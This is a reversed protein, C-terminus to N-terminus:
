DLWYQIRLQLFNIGPNPNHIGANSLHQLRLSFDYSEFRWGAGIHDGFQYKTSFEVASSVHTDSLYHLGIGGDAYPGHRKGYRLVPTIGLDVLSGIDGDWAGVSADWYLSFRTGELWRPQKQRWQVGLRYMDVQRTGSGIEGSISDLAQASSAVVLFLAAAFIEKM